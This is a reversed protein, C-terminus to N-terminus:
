QYKRCPAEPQCADLGVVTQIEPLERQLNSAIGVSIGGLQRPSSRSFIKDAPEGAVPVSWATGTEVIAGIPILGARVRFGTPDLQWLITKDRSDMWTAWSVRALYKGRAPRSRSAVRDRQTQRSVSASLTSRAVSIRSRSSPGIVIAHSDEVVCQVLRQPDHTVISPGPPSWQAGPKREVPDVKSLSFPTNSLSTISAWSARSASFFSAAGRRPPAAGAQWPRCSCSEHCRCGPLRNSRVRAGSAANPWDDRDGACPIQRAAACIPRICLGHDLGHCRLMINM